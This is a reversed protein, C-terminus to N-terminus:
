VEHLYSTWVLQAKIFRGNILNYKKLKQYLKFTGACESDAYFEPGSHAPVNLNDFAASTIQNVTTKYLGM